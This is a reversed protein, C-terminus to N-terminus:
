LSRLYIWTHNICQINEESDLRICFPFFIDTLIHCAEAEDEDPSSTLLFAEMKNSSDTLLEVNNTEKTQDQSDDPGKM